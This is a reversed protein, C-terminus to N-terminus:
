VELNGLTKDIEKDIEEDSMESHTEPAHPSSIIVPEAEVAPRRTIRSRLGVITNERVTKVILFRLISHIEETAKKINGIDDGSSEFKVWGFYGTDFKQNKGLVHKVMEYSLEKMEPFSESIIAKSNKEIIAKIKGVESALGNDGVSPVIIYSIEYVGGEAEESEDNDFSAEALEPTEEEIKMDIDKEDVM